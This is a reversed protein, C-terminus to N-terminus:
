GFGPWDASVFYFPMLFNLFFKLFLPMKHRENDVGAFYIQLYILLSKPM